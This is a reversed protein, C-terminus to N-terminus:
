FVTRNILSRNRYFGDDAIFVVFVFLAVSVFYFKILINFILSCASLISMASSSKETLIVSCVSYYTGLVIVWLINLSSRLIVLPLITLM